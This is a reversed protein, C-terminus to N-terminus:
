LRGSKVDWICICLKNGSSILPWLIDVIDDPILALFIIRRGSSCIANCDYEMVSDNGGSSMRVQEQAIEEASSSLTSDTNM